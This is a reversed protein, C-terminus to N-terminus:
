RHDYRPIFRVLKKNPNDNKNRLELELCYNSIRVKFDLFNINNYSVNELTTQIGNGYIEEWMKRHKEVESMSLLGVTIILTDDRFRSIIAPPMGDRWRRKNKHECWMSFICALSASLFGGMALGKTQQYTKKRVTFFTNDMEFEAYNNIQELTLQIFDRHRSLGTRDRHRERTLRNIAIYPGFNEKIILLAEKLALKVINKDLETFQNKQDIKIFTLQKKLFRAKWKTDENYYKIVDIYDQTSNLNLHQWKNGLSKIIVTLARGIKRGYNRTYFKYYSVIPRWRSIDKDKPLLYAFGLEWKMNRNIFNSNLNETSKMINEKINVNNVIEKYHVPDEGFFKNVSNQYFTKCTMTWTNVNKDRELFVFDEKFDKLINKTSQLSYIGKGPHGIARLIERGKIKFKINMITNTIKNLHHEIASLQSGIYDNYKQTVACKKNETLLERLKCFDDPLNEAKIHIHGNDNKQINFNNCNCIHNPERLTKKRNNILKQLTIEKGTIVTINDIIYLRLPEDDITEKIKNQIWKKIKRKDLNPSYELKFKYNWEINYGNKRLDSIVRRKIKTQYNPEVKAKSITNLLSIKTKYDWTRWKENNLIMQTKKKYEERASRIKELRTWDRDNLYHKEKSNRNPTKKYWMSPDNVTFNRFNHLWFRERRDLDTEGCDELKLIIWNEWVIKRMYKYAPRHIHILSDRYHEQFRKYLNRKTQGIYCRKTITNLLIYIGSNNIDTKQNMQTLAKRIWHERRLHLWKNREEMIKIIKKWNKRKDYLKVKILNTWLSHLKKAWRTGM